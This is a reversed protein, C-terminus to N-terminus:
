PKKGKLKRKSGKLPYPVYDSLQEPRFLVDLLHHGVDATKALSTEAATAPLPPQLGMPRQAALAAPSHQVALCREQIAKASYSKGLESGNFVCKTNHDIYTIGYILGTHAMRLATHIGQRKLEDILKELTIKGDLLAMDVANRVRRKDTEPKHANAKFKQELYSLTPKNYFMSAKIPVGIPKGETDLMRYLLGGHKFIRSDESGKDAMVNYLKLVANLEPLSAFKYNELVHGIVKQIAAKTQMKGYLAKSVSIPKLVESAEKKLATRQAKASVLGYSKEIAKRATESENKGINNMDIRSGDHRIKISVIHVHVHGADHHQYVLYPQRGFGIGNMYDEAIQMLKEKSLADDEPSFNLSIHVSNRTVNQNLAAQKLLRNLRMNEDMQEPDLPYNGAGICEAVGEKIKNENYSFIRRISHGTKIVAVM